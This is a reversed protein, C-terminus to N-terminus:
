EAVTESLRNVVAYPIQVGLAELLAYLNGAIVCPRRKAESGGAATSWADPRRSVGDLAEGHNWSLGGVTATLPALCGAISVVVRRAYGEVYALCDSPPETYEGPASLERAHFTRRVEAQVRGDPHVQWWVTGSGTTHRHVGDEDIHPAAIAWEDDAPPLAEGAVLKDVTGTAYHPDEQWQRQAWAHYFTRALAFSVEAQTRRVGEGPSIDPVTNPMTNTM